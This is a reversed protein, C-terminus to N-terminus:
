SWRSTGLFPLKLFLLFCSDLSINSVVPQNEKAVSDEYEIERQQSLFTDQTDPHGIINFNFVIRGSGSYGLFGIKKRMYRIGVLESIKIRGM